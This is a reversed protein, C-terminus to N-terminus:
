APTEEASLAAILRGTVDKRALPRCTLGAKALVPAHQEVAYIDAGARRLLAVIAEPVAAGDQETWAEESDGALVFAASFRDIPSAPGIDEAPDLICLVAAVRPDFLPAQCAQAWVLGPLSLPHGEFRAGASDVIALQPIAENIMALAAADPTGVTLVMPIRGEGSVLEQLILKQFDGRIPEGIFPRANVECIAGGTEHWSRAIDPLILDLGAIDLRLLGAARLALDLNDPHIDEVIRVSGGLAFNAARRLQVFQGEAPTSSLDLGQRRAMLEAEQDWELTYLHTDPGPGRGPERNMEDVLTEITATGNGTVGGPTREIAILLRGHFLLLRYDKGAIHKEVLINRSHKQAAAYAQDLEEPSRIDCFVGVGGDLDAPKVVVPFGLQRACQRAAALSEVPAGQAVPFGAQALLANCLSKTRAIGLGITPTKHTTSGGLVASNRGLGVQLQRSQWGLVPMGLERAARVFEFINPGPRGVETLQTRLRGIWGDFPESAQASIVFSRALAQLLERALDGLLPIAPVAIVATDGEDNISVLEAPEAVFFRAEKLLARHAGLVLACFWLAPASSTTTDNEPLCNQRALEGQVFSRQEATLAPVAIEVLDSQTARTGTFFAARAPRNRLSM